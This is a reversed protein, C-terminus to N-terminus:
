SPTAKPTLIMPFTVAGRSSAPKGLDYWLVDSRGGSDVTWDPHSDLVYLPESIGYAGNVFWAHVEIQRRHCQEIMYGMPDYGPQVGELMPCLPTQFAAQGGWYWVLLYVANFDARELRDVCDDAEV